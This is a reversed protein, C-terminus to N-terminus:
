SDAGTTSASPRLHVRCVDPEAFAELRDVRIPAQWTEFAGQMLGLHIPCVVRTSTEALELFPCSRLEIRSPGGAQDPAFGLRDLMRLMRTRAARATRLPAGEAAVRSGWRRGIETARRSAQPHSELDEGLIMALAQYERRGEPDMRGVPRYAAPPRGPRGHEVAVAEVRGARTLANLHFRVTNPHVGLREAIEAIGLPGGASRLVELVEERRGHRGPEDSTM